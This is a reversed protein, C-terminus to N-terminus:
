INTKAAGSGMEKYFRESLRWLWVANFGLLILLCIMYPAREPTEAWTCSGIRCPSQSLMSKSDIAVARLVVACFIYVRWYLWSLVTVGLVVV